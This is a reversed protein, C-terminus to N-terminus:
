GLRAVALAALAIAVLVLAYTTMTPISAAGSLAARPEGIVTLYGIGYPIQFTTIVAGTEINLRTIRGDYATWFSVGDPDLALAKGQIGYSRLVNGIPDVRIVDSEHAILLSGDSLIRITRGLPEPRVPGIHVPPGGTCANWTGFRRPSAFYTTCHDQAVDIGGPLTGPGQTLVVAGSADMVTASGPVSAAVIRGDGTPALFDVLAISAFQGLVTGAEDFHIIEAASPVILRGNMVLPDYFARTTSSAFIRRLTGDPSYQLIVNETATAYDAGTVILDGHIFGVQAMANTALFAFLAAWRLKM